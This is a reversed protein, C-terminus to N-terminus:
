WAVGVARALFGILPAQARSNEIFRDLFDPATVEAQSYEAFAFFSKRRLDDVWPHDAPYGHPPKKLQEGELRQAAEFKPSHAVKKWRASDSVIADRIKGLAASDTVHLGGGSFNRETASLHLYYGPASQERGARHSFSIGVNTKYPTKDKSFRIDRYVRMLSGGQPRPDALIEPSIKALRPAAAEIFAMAPRRVDAEYRPKHKEFWERNNNKVLQRLVDFTADTFYSQKASM